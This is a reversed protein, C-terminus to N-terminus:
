CWPLCNKKVPAIIVSARQFNRVTTAYLITSEMYIRRFCCQGAGIDSADVALKFNKTFDPAALVPQNM